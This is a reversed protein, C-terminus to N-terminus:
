YYQATESQVLLGLRERKLALHEINQVPMDSLCPEKSEEQINKAAEADLQRQKFKAKLDANVQNLKTNQQAYRSSRKTNAEKVKFFLNKDSDAV